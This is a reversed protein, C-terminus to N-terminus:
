FAYGQLPIAFCHCLPLSAFRTPQIIRGPLRQKGRPGPQEKEFRAGLGWLDKRYLGKENSYQRPWCVGQQWSCHTSHRLHSCCDHWVAGPTTTRKKAHFNHSLLIALRKSINNRFIFFYLSNIFPRLKRILSWPFCLFCPKWWFTKTSASLGLCASSDAM